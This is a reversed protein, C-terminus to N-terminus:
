GEFDITLSPAPAYVTLYGAVLAPSDSSGLFELGDQAVSHSGADLFSSRPFLSLPPPFISFCVVFIVVLFSLLFIFPRPQLETTFHEDAQSPYTRPKTLLVM